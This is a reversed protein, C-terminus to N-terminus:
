ELEVRKLKSVIEGYVGEPVILITLNISDTYKYVEDLVEDVIKSNRKCDVKGVGILYYNGDDDVFAGGEKVYQLFKELGARLAREM